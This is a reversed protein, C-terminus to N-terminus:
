SLSTEFLRLKLKMATVENAAKERYGNLSVYEDDAVEEKKIATRGKKVSKDSDNEEADDEDEDQSPKGGKGKRKKASSGPQAKATRKRPTVPDAAGEGEGEPTAPLTEKKLKMYRQRVAERTKGLKPAVVDWNPTVETAQIIALLLQRDATDTWTPM